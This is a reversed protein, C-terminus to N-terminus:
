DDEKYRLGAAITLRDMKRHYLRNWMNNYDDINRFNDMIVEDNTYKVAQAIFANVAKQHKNIVEADTCISIM